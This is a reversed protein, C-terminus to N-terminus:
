RVTVLVPRHDSAMPEAIVVASRTKKRSRSSFIFDIRKVPKPAPFTPETGSLLTFRSRLGEVLADGPEANLDGLLYLPKRSRAAEAEILVLSALRDAPTLSLHTAFVIFRKFEVVLLVRGEERGPLAVTHHQLPVEKSLLAVGYSGGQYPIAAGFIGHYGTAKALTDMVVVGASRKTASDVEQLAIVDAGTASLVGAVRAYDTKGDMGKANRINYSLLRFTGKQASCLFTASLLCATLITRPFM